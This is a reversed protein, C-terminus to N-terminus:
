RATELDGQGDALRFASRQTLGARQEGVENGREHTVFQGGDEQFRNTLFRAARVLGFNDARYVLWAETSPAAPTTVAADISTGARAASRSPEVLVPGQARRTSSRRQAM